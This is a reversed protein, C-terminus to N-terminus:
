LDIRRKPKTLIPSLNEPAPEQTFDAPKLPWTRQPQFNQVKEPQVKPYGAADEETEHEHFSPLSTAEQLKKRYAAVFGGGLLSEASIMHSVDYGERACLRVVEAVLWDPGMQMVTGASVNVKNGSPLRIVYCYSAPDQWVSVTNVLVKEMQPIIAGM